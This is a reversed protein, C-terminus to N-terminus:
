KIKYTITVNSKIIDEGKPLTARTVSEAKGMGYAMDEYMPMPYNYDEAEYFSSIGKLRIGLDEALIEAKAKADEIAKKRAEAKLGDQDDVEFNPGNLQSVGAVGLEEIVKGTNDIERIKVVITEYAEYGVIVSKGPRFDSYIYEYKPSFSANTTKIDTEAIENASLVELAKAEAQAVKEQAEVVTKAEGRLTFSVTAVDPVATVEGYGSVSIFNEMQNETEGFSSLDEVVQVVLYISLLVALVMGVGGFKKKYDSNSEM